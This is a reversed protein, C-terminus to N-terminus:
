GTGTGFVWTQEAQRMISMSIGGAALTPSPQAIM